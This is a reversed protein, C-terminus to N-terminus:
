KANSPCGTYWPNTSAPPACNSQPVAALAALDTQSLAINFVRLNDLAHAANQTRPNPYVGQQIQWALQVQPGTVGYKAGIAAAAPDYIPSSACPPQMTWSDPRAFPTWSNVLIGNAQCYAVLGAEATSHYLHFSIQNLTPLPLGAAKIAELHSINFNSVGVSRTQGAKWAALLAAYSSLMCATDNYTSQGWNCVPDSSAGCGNGTECSPWHLMLNDVYSLGMVRLLTATQNLTENYGMELDPGVKTQVFIQQRPVLATRVARGVADHNRYTDAGDIRSLNYGLSSSLQIWMSIAAETYQGCSSNGLPQLCQRDACSVWCEPWNAFGNDKSGGATGLGMTPYLLGPDAANGMPVVVPLAKVVALAGVCSTVFLRAM